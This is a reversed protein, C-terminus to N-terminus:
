HLAKQELARAIVEDARSVSKKARELFAKCSEIREQLPPVKSKDQPSESNRWPLRDRGGCKQDTWSMPQWQRQPVVPSSKISFPPAPRAPCAAVVRISLATGQHGKAALPQPTRPFFFRLVFLGVVSFVVLDCFAGAGHLCLCTQVCITQALIATRRPLWTAQARGRLLLPESQARAKALSCLFEITEPSWRGGVEAALVVLGRVVMVLSNRNTREGNDPRRLHQETTTPPEGGPQGM